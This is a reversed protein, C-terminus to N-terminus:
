FRGVLALLAGSDTVQPVVSLRNSRGSAHYGTVVRGCLEGIAAGLLVDSAWHKDQYIRSFGVFAAATYAGISAIRSESTAAMVSAMAFSSATHMSPIADYDTRFQFPRFSGSGRGAAPRGRGISEKLLLTSADALIAAEGFMEGLERYKPSKSIVGGGYVAAAIGLHIFPDGVLTGADTARDLNRGKKDALRERIDEDYISTLAVSGAVLLTGLLGGDKLDVPTRIVEASEEGIRGVASRIEASSTFVSEEASVKLPGFLMAVLLAAALIRESKHDTVSRKGAMYMLILVLLAGAADALADLPDASRNKTLVGQAVEMLAGFAVVALYVRRILVRRQLNLASCANVILFTLIGYAAAHQFKDWGLLSNSIQPPSPILSLWVIAVSWVICLVFFLQYIRRSM